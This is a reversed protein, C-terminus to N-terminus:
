ADSAVEAPADGTVVEIYEAMYWSRRDNFEIHVAGHGRHDIVHAIPRDPAIHDFPTNAGTTEVITGRLKRTGIHTVTAGVPMQDRLEAYLDVVVAASDIWSQTAALLHRAETETTPDFATPEGTTDDTYRVTWSRM